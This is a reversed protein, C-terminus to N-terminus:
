PLRQVVLPVVAAAGAERLVAAAVTISWMLRGTAAVLLVTGSVPTGHHLLHQEIHAVHASASLDAPAPPGTWDFVENVPIGYRGGLIHALTNGRQAQGPSPLPVIADPRPPRWRALTRMVAEVLDPSPDADASRLEAVLEPWGPDDAYCVAMGPEAGVIRGRRSAGRPWIKRPQLPHPIDRLFERASEVGQATPQPGPAPLEGTCASCTGCPQAGPDDLAEILVQMLCRGGDAYQRMLDAEMRRTLLVRDYKAADYTWPQGTAAWASGQRDVAGDVRLQKLLIDLKGRRRGTLSELDALGLPGEALAALVAAAADPDPLTAEAFYRWLREDAVGAPLLIGLARDLQRGARGVQQYYAVPSAPCGVHLCFGLDPKDYGMGLASTAVVAKIRNGRLDDEIRQRQEADTQGTYAAVPHGRGSLFQAYTEAEQVTLCYVIGSGPLSALAQDVWAMRQLGSLGPVVSLRLSDRALPGRMVLTGDGLQAAVDDTVRQNATATTALVPTGPGLQLLLQAVRQYDPRFDFGWDSICHAEDIVLLGARALLPLARDAFRPNALREPSVLLVDVSDSGLQDFVEDWDDANSSNVTRAALGAREAAAIQDRMLALLPSIVVTPGAGRQRLAATAAWYVLSKGWGTAQVVLVRKQGDVLATVAERQGPRPRATPGAMSRLTQTLTDHATPNGDPATM